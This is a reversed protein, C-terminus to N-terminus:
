FYTQYLDHVVSLSNEITLFFPEDPQLMSKVKDLWRMNPKMCRM